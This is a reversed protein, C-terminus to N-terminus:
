HKRRVHLGALLSSRSAHYLPKTIGTSVPSAVVCARSFPFVEKGQAQTTSGSTSTDGPKCIAKKYKHKPKHEHKRCYTYVLSLLQVWNRLRWACDVYDTTMRISISLGEDCEHHCCDCECQPMCGGVCPQCGHCIHCGSFFIISSCPYLFRDIFLFRYLLSYEYLLSWSHSKFIM